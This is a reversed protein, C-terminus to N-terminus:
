DPKKREYNWDKRAKPWVVVGLLVYGAGLVLFWRWGTLAFLVWPSLLAAYAGCICVRVALVM